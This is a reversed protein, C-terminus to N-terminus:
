GTLKPALARSGSRNAFRLASSNQFQLSSASAPSRSRSGSSSSSIAWCGAGRPVDRSNTSPTSSSRGPTGTTAIAQELSTDALDLEAQKEAMLAKLYLFEASLPPFDVTLVPEDIRQIVGFGPMTRLAVSGGVRPPEDSADAPPCDTAEPYAGADPITGPSSSESDGSIVRREVIAGADRFARQYREASSTDLDRKVTVPGSSFLRDLQRSSLKFRAQIADRAQQPSVGPQLRGNFVLHYRKETM